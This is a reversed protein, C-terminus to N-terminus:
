RLYFRLLLTVRVVAPVTTCRLLTPPTYCDRCLDYRVVTRHCTVFLPLTCTVYRYRPISCVTVILVFSRLPVRLPLRPLPLTFLLLYVRHSRHAYGPLLTFAYCFSADCFLLLASVYAVCLYTFTVHRYTSRCNVAAGYVWILAVAHPITVFRRLAYRCFLRSYRYRPICHARHLSLPAAVIAPVHFAGTVTASCVRRCAHPRAYVCLRMFSRTCCHPVPLPLRCTHLTRCRCFTAFVPAVCLFISACRRYCVVTYRTVCTVRVTVVFLLTVVTRYCCRMLTTYFPATHLCRTDPLTHLAAVDIRFTFAFM